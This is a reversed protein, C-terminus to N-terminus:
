ENHSMPICVGSAISRARDVESTIGTVYEVPYGELGGIFHRLRMSCERLIAVAEISEELLQNTLCVETTTERKRKVNLWKPNNIFGIGGSKSPVIWGHNIANRLVLLDDAADCMVKSINCISEELQVSKERISKILDSVPKADTSPRKDKSMEEEAVTLVTLELESEFMGWAIVFVGIKQLTSSSVGYYGEINRLVEAFTLKNVM